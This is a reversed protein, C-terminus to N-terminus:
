LACEVCTGGSMPMGCVECFGRRPEQEALRQLKEPVKNKDYEVKPLPPPVPDQPPDPMTNEPTVANIQEDPILLDVLESFLSKIRQNRTM